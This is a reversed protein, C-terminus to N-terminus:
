PTLTPITALCTTAILTYGSTNPHIDIYAPTFGLSACSWALQCIEVVDTPVGGLLAMNSTQFADQVNAVPVGAGGYAAGLATNYGVVLAVSGVAIAQLSPVGTIWLALFPDYYSMGVIPTHPAATRLVGLIKSLNAPAQVMVESVCTPDIVAAPSVCRAIDKGGIDITIADVEHTRLFRVAAHLQDSTRNLRRYASACQAEASLGSLLSATTEGPCSRNELQLAPVEAHLGAYVSPVCGTVLTATRSSATPSPIGSHSTPRERHEGDGPAATRAAVLDLLDALPDCGAHEHVGEQDAGDQHGREDADEASPVPPRGCQEALAGDLLDSLRVGDGSTM